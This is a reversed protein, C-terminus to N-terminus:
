KLSRLNLLIIRCTVAPTNLSTHKNGHRAPICVGPKDIEM